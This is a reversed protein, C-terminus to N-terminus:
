KVWVSLEEFIAMVTYIPFYIHTITASDWSFEEHPLIHNVCIYSVLPVDHICAVFMDDVVAIICENINQQCHHM